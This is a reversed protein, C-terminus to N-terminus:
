FKEAWEFPYKVVQLFETLECLLFAKSFSQTGDQSGENVPKGAGFLTSAVITKKKKWAYLTGKGPSFL